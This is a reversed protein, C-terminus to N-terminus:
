GEGNPKHAFILPEAVAYDSLIEALVILFDLLAWAKDDLFFLVM